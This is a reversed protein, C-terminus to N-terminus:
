GGSSGEEAVAGEGQGCGGGEERAGEESRGSAGEDGCGEARQAAFDEGFAHADEAADGEGLGGDARQAKEGRKGGFWPGAGAVCGAETGRGHLGVLGGDGLAFVAEVEIEPCGGGGTRVGDEDPDVAAAVGAALGERRDEVAGEERTFVDHEDGDGVTEADEAEHIELREETEGVGVAGVVGEAIEYECEAPHVVVDGGEPSVGVADGDAALGGACFGGGGEHGDGFGGM